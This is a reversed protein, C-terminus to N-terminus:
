SKGPRHSLAGVFEFNNEVSQFLDKEKLYKKSQGVRSKKKKKKEPGAL